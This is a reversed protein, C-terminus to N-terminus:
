VLVVLAAYRAVKGIAVLVLFLGLPTRLVGAAFTLPDGLYPTWALLLSWVGWRQFWSCAREVLRAPIPFWRAHRHQWLFRGLVWNVVSGLVNGVSASVVLGTPSYGGAADLAVLLFESQAPLLTAALLASAFMAAYAVWAPHGALAALAEAGTLGPM